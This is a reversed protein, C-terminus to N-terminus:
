EVSYAKFVALTADHKGDKALQLATKGKKDKIQAYEAPEAGFYGSKGPFMRTESTGGEMLSGLLANVVDAHGKAAAMMLATQGQGDRAKVDAGKALLDRVATEDGKAAATM